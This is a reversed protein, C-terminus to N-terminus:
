LRVERGDRFVKIGLLRMRELTLWDSKLEGDGIWELQYERQGSARATYATVVAEWRESVICRDGIQPRADLPERKMAEMAFASGDPARSKVPPNWCPCYAYELRERIKELRDALDDFYAVLPKGCIAPVPKTPDAPRISAGNAISRLEVEIDNLDPFRM